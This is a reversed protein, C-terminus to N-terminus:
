RWSVGQSQAKSGLELVEEPPLITPIVGEVEDVLEPPLMTGALEESMCWVVIVHPSLGM